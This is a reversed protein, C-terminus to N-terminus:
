LFQFYAILSANVQQIAMTRFLDFIRSSMVSGLCHINTFKKLIDTCFGSDAYCQPHSKFAFEQLKKCTGSSKYVRVDSNLIAKM